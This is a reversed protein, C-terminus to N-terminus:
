NRSDRNTVFQCGNGIVEAVQISRTRVITQVRQRNGPFCRRRPGWERQADPAENENPISEIEAAMTPKDEAVTGRDSWLRGVAQPKPWSEVPVITQPRSVRGRFDGTLGINVRERRIRLCATSSTSCSRHAWPEGIPGFHVSNRYLGSSATKCHVSKTLNTPRGQLVIKSGKQNAGLGKLGRLESM